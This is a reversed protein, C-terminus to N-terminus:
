STTISLNGMQEEILVLEQNTNENNDKREQHKRQTSDTQTVQAEVSNKVKNIEEEKRYTTKKNTDANYEFLNPNCSIVKLKEAWKNITGEKLWGVEAQKLAERIQGYLLLDHLTIHKPDYIALDKAIQEINSPDRVPTKLVQNLIESDVYRRNHDGIGKIYQIVDLNKTNEM